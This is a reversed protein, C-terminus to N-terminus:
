IYHVIIVSFAAGVALGLMLFFSMVVGAAEALDRHVVKPGYIMPLTGLYGNSLGLFSTFIIPYVDTTFVVTKIHNRPQYNCYMFLPVFITRLLVAVPLLKSKPGPFQIWVTIQRGCFDAMNYLLFTTLPTFYTTTWPSGSNKHVSEIGSLVAPFVIISIFFVYFVCSGLMATKKLIPQLPPISNMRLHEETGRGADIVEYQLLNLSGTGAMYYRSYALRNLLLYAIICLVIFIDATLFYALASDTIDNGAALDIISAVASLTGGMAQGSILAQSIRMPFRGTVGFVSGTFVTSAGSVCAVCVLTAMFFEKTVASTDVKVFVTTIIFIALMVSLSSLVRVTPSIKNVLLFNLILCIVSPVTSAISLYGEFYNSFDSSSPGSGSNLKYTWYHKATVFFNWPLLSGVGLLFFIAYVVSFNDQPKQRSAYLNHISDESPLLPDQDDSNSDDSQNQSIRQGHFTEM